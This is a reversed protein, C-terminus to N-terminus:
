GCFKHKNKLKKDTKSNYCKGDQTIYYTTSINDISIQKM